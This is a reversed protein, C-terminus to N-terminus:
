CKRPKEVLVKLNYRYIFLTYSVAAEFFHAASKQREVRLLSEGAEVHRQRLFYENVRLYEGYLRYVQLCPKSANILAWIYVEVPILEIFPKHRKNRRVNFYDKVAAAFAYLPVAVTEPQLNHVAAFLAHHRRFVDDAGVPRRADHASAKLSFRFHPAIDCYLM